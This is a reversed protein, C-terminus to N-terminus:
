AAPGSKAFGPRPHKPWLGVEKREAESMGGWYGDTINNKLAFTLCMGRVSCDACIEEVVRTDKSFFAEPDVDRCAADATWEPSPRWALVLASLNRVIAPM